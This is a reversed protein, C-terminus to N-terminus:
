YHNKIHLQISVSYAGANGQQIPKLKSAMLSKLCKQLSNWPAQLNQKLTCGM